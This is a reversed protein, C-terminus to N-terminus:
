AIVKEIPLVLISSAGVSKLSEITEWFVTERAVAHIAVREGSSGLPIISPEEMGPIIQRIKEIASAPANMMIYKSESAHIVGNVRQM